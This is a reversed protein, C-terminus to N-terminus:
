NINSPIPGTIHTTSSVSCDIVCGGFEGDWKYGSKCICQGVNAPDYIGGSNTDGSCDRGCVEAGADWTFGVSCTCVNINTSPQLCNSLAYNILNCDRVCKHISPKFIYNAVCTCIHPDLPDAGTSHSDVSPDCSKLTLSSSVFLSLLIIATLKSM